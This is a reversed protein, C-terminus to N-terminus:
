PRDLLRDIVRSRKDPSKDALFERAEAATPLTGITDLYVRRQFTADDALDAAPIGLRQLNDWAHRDIYTSEAPRAPTETQPLVIRCSTVHDLYRVLIAAQGPIDSAEILGRRDPHAIAPANSDYQAEMTVCRRHGNADTATVRLQQTGHPALIQ